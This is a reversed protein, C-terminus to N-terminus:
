FLKFIILLVVIDTHKRVYSRLNRLAHKMYTQVTHPSLNLKKAAEEYKLGEIHCLEYVLKQHLPLLAIGKQLVKRTDRLLIQEETENHAELWNKSRENGAKLELKLRRLVNFSKNKSITKLYPELHVVSNLEEGMQWLTLMTEQMVENAHVNSNLIRLAFLYVKKAFRDYIIKFAEHDGKAIRSILIKEDPWIKYVYM